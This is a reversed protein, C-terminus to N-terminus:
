IGSVISEALRMQTEDGESKEPEDDSSSPGPKQVSGDEVDAGDDEVKSFDKSFRALMWEKGGKYSYWFLFGAHLGVFLLAGLTSVVVGTTDSNFGISLGLVLAPYAVFALIIYAIPFIRYTAAKDGLARAGRLPINRIRKIPYIWLFGFVNFLLHVMAIQFADPSDSVLSALFADVTTGINAGITLPFMAELSLTDVAVLPTLAATVVSSSRFLITVGAGVLVALYENMHLIRRLQDASQHKKIVNLTKVMGLLAIVLLVISILITVWGAVEDSTDADYFVGDVNVRFDDFHEQAGKLVDAYATANYTGDDECFTFKAKATLAKTYAAPDSIELEAPPCLGSDATTETTCGKRSFKYTCTTECLLKCIGKSPRGLAFDKVVGKDVVIVLDTLASTLVKFPGEWTECDGEKIKECSSFLADTIAETVIFLLGGRGSNGADVIVELSLFLLVNMYNFLDHLTAGSFARRYQERNGAFGMSVLTSTVSTGINAGFIMPVAHQVTLVGSGVATVVISTTTSSSQLLVTALIGVMLGAIPNDVASFLSGASDGALVKFASGML